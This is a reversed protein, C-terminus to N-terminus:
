PRRPWNVKDNKSAASSQKFRGMAYVGLSIVVYCYIAQLLLFLFISVINAQYFLNFKEPLHCKEYVFASPLLVYAIYNFSEPGTRGGMVACVWGLVSVPLLMVLTWVIRKTRPGM